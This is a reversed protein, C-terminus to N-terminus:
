ALQLAPLPRAPAPAAADSHLPKLIEELDHATLSPLQSSAGLRFANAQGLKMDAMRRIVSELSGDAHLILCRLQKVREDRRLRAMAQREPMANWWPDLSIIVDAEPTEWGQALRTQTFLITAEGARFKQVAEGRGSRSTKGKICVARHGAAQVVPVLRDIWSTFFSTVVVRKGEHAFQALLELLKQTKAPYEPNDGIAPISSIQPDLCMQRMIMLRALIRNRGASFGYRAVIDAISKEATVRAAEYLNAQWEPLAVSVIETDLEPLRRGLEDNTRALHFPSIVRGLAYLRAQASLVDEEFRVADEPNDSGHERLRPYARNFSGLDPLLGPVTLQILSWIDSPGNVYPNGTIVLKQRAHLEKVLRYVLNRHNLLRHAEDCAVVNWQFRVVRDFAAEMAEYTTLVVHETLADTNLADFSAPTPLELFRMSPLFQRADEQWRGTALLTKDVLVLSCSGTGQVEYYANYLTILAQLTKGVAYEDALIAGVGHARRVDVWLAGHAQYPRAPRTLAALTRSPLSDPIDNLADVINLFDTNATLDVGIADQVERLMPAQWKSIRYEGNADSVLGTVLPFLPVLHRMPVAVHTGDSQPFYWFADAQANPDTVSSVLSPDTFCQQLFVLMDIRKGNVSATMSIERWGDTEDGFEVAYDTPQASAGPWLPSYTFTWGLPKLSDELQRQLERCDNHHADDTWLGAAFRVSGPALRGKWAAKVRLRADNEFALDRSYVTTTMGDRIAYSQQTADSKVPGFPYQFTLRAVPTGTPDKVFNAQAPHVLRPDNPVWDLHCQVVPQIMGADINKFKPLAKVYAPALHADASDSLANLSAVDLDTLPPISALVMTSETPWDHKVPGVLGDETAYRIPDSLLVVGGGDVRFTPMWHIEDPSSWELSANRLDAHRLVVTPHEELRLRGADILLPLIEAMCPHSLAVPENRQTHGELALTRAVRRDIHDATSFVEHEISSPKAACSGQALSAFHLWSLHRVNRNPRSEAFGYALSHAAGRRVDTLVYLLRSPQQHQEQLGIPMSAAMRSSLLLKAAAPPLQALRAMGPAALKPFLSPKAQACVCWMLLFHRHQCTDAMCDCTGSLRPHAASDFELYAKVPFRRQTVPDKLMAEFSLSTIARASTVEYAGPALPGTYGVAALTIALNISREDDSRSIHFPHPRELM